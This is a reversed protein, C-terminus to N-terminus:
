AKFCALTMSAFFIFTLSGVPFESFPEAQWGTYIALLALVAAWGAVLRVVRRENGHNLSLLLLLPVATALTWLPYSWLPDDSPWFDTGFARYLAFLLIGQVVAIILMAARPLSSSDNM